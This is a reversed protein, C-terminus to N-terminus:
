SSTYIAHFPLSVVRGSWKWYGILSCIFFRFGEVYMIERNDFGEYVTGTVNSVLCLVFVFLVCCLFRFFLQCWIGWYFGYLSLINSLVHFAQCLIYAKGRHVVDITFYRRILYNCIIFLLSRGNQCNPTHKAVKNTSGQPCYSVM